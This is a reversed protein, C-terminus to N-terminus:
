KAGACIALGSTVSSFVDSVIIKGPGFIRGLMEVFCPIQSSGGTRIVADIDSLQLGSRGLTDLLCTEIHRREQHIFAEFQSRTLPQWLDIDEAELRVVAFRDRSLAVKAAETADFLRIAHNNVLLSELARVRQPHSSTLQVVRLFRLIEPRNM